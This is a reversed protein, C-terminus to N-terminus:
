EPYVPGLSYITENIDKKFLDDLWKAHPSRLSEESIKVFADLSDIEKKLSYLEKRINM